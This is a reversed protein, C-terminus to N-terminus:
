APQQKPPYTAGICAGSQHFTCLLQQLQSFARPQSAPVWEVTSLSGISASGMSSGRNESSSSPTCCTAPMRCGSGGRSLTGDNEDASSPGMCTGVGVCTEGGSKGPPLLGALTSSLLTHPGHLSTLHFCSLNDIQVERGLVKIEM